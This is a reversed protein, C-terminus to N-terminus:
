IQLIKQVNCADCFLLSIQQKFIFLKNDIEFIIMTSFYYFYMTVMAESTDVFDLQCNAVTSYVFAAHVENPLVPMDGSYIAEGTCQMRGEYKEVPKNM